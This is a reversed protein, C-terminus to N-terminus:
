VHVSGPLKPHRLRHLPGLTGDANVKKNPDVNGTAAASLSVTVAESNPKTSAAAPQPTPALVTPRSTTPDKLPLPTSTVSAISM